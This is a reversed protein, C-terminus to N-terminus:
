TPGERSYVVNKAQFSHALDNVPTCLAGYRLLRTWSRPTTSTHIRTCTRLMM